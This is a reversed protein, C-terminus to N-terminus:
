RQAFKSSMQDSDFNDINSMQIAMDAIYILIHFINKTFLFVMINICMYLSKLERSTWKWKQICKKKM